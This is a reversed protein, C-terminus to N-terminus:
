ACLINSRDNLSTFADETDKLFDERLKRSLKKQITSM